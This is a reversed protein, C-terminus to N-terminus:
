SGEVAAAHVSRRDSQAGPGCRHGGDSRGHRRVRRRCRHPLRVLGQGSRRLASRVQEHQLGGPRQRHGCLRLEQHRDGGHHRRERHGRHRHRHEAPVAAAMCATPEAGIPVAPQPPLRGHDREAARPHRGSRRAASGMGHEGAGRWAARRDAHRRLHGHGTRNGRRVPVAYRHQRERRPLHAQHHHQLRQLRGLAGCGSDDGHRGPWGAAPHDRQGAVARERRRHRQRLHLRLQDSPQGPHLRDLRQGASACQPHVGAFGRGVPRLHQLRRLLRRAHHQGDDHLHRTGHRRAHASHGHHIGFRRQEAGGQHADQLLHRGGAGARDHLREPQRVPGM